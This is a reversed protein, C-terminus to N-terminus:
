VRPTLRDDGAQVVLAFRGCRHDGKGLDVPRRVHVIQGDLPRHLGFRANAVCTPCPLGGVILLFDSSPGDDRDSQEFPM